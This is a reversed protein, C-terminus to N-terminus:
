MTRQWEDILENYKSEALDDLTLDLAIDHDAIDLDPNAKAEAEVDATIEAIWENARALLGEEECSDLTEEVFEVIHTRQSAHSLLTELSVGLQEHAFTQYTHYDVYLDMAIDILREELRNLDESVEEPTGQKRLDNPDDIALEGDVFTRDLMDTLIQNTLATDIWQFELWGRILDREAQLSVLMSNTVLHHYDLDGVEYSYTPLTNVLRDIADDDNAATAKLVLHLRDEPALDALEERAIDDLENALSRIGVTSTRGM